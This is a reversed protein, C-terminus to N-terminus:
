REGMFLNYRHPDPVWGPPSIVPTGPWLAALAMRLSRSFTATYTAFSRRLKVKISKVSFNKVPSGLTGVPRSELPPNPTGGLGM